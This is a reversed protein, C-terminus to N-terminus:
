YLLSIVTSCYHLCHIIDTEFTAFCCEVQSYHMLVVDHISHLGGKLSSMRLLKYKEKRKIVAYFFMGSFLINLSHELIGTTSNVAHM